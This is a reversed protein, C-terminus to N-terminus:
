LTLPVREILSTFCDVLPKKPKNKIRWVKLWFPFVDLLLATSGPLGFCCISSILMRLFSLCMGQTAAGIAFLSFLLSFMATLFDNFEYKDPYTFIQKRPRFFFIINSSSFIGHRLFQGVKVLASVLWGGWWFQLANVWQQILISLGSLGGSIVSESVINGESKALAEVYDQYRQEELTLASVTRINLLTEVIIGGPSDRGDEKEKADEDEGLFRKM